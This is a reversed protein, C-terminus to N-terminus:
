IVVKVLLAAKCIREPTIHFFVDPWAISVIEGTGVIEQTTQVKLWRLFSQRCYFLEKHIKEVVQWAASIDTSYPQPQPSLVGQPYGFVEAEIARDLEKGAEMELIDIEYM